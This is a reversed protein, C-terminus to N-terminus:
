RLTSDTVLGMRGQIIIAMKRKKSGAGIAPDALHKESFLVLASDDDGDTSLLVMADQVHGLCKELINTTTGPEVQDRGLYLCMINSPSRGLGSLEKANENSNTERLEKSTDVARM